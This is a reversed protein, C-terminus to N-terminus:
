IDTESYLHVSLSNLVYSSDMGELGSSQRENRLQGRNRAKTTAMMICGIVWIMFRFSLMAKEIKRTHAPLWWDRRDRDRLYKQIRYMAGLEHNELKDSQSNNHLM